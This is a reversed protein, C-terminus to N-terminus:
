LNVLGLGAKSTVTLMGKELVPKEFPNNSILWPGDLDIFDALPSLHIGAIIACSSETMSGLVTQMNCKKATELMQMAPYIGGAKMLKINVGSYVKSLVPISGVGQCDEDAFIPLSTKETLRKVEELNGKEIPQELLLFGTKELMNVLSMAKDASHFAGNADALLPLDVNDKLWNLQEYTTEKGVKLKINSFLKATELKEEMEAITSIGLTYTASKIPRSLNLFAYLPLDQQKSKWDHWAIDIAAKASANGLKLANMVDHLEQATNPIQKLRKNLEEVFAVVTNQNELLYPPLSAEGVGIVGEQSMEVFVADTTTRISGNGLKFPYTLQHTHFHSHIM